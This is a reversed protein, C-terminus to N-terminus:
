QPGLNSGEQHRGHQEFGDARFKPNHDNSSGPSFLNDILLSPTTGYGHM